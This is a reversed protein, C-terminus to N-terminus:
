HVTEVVHFSERVAVVGVCLGSCVCREVDTRRGGGKENFDSSSSAFAVSFPACPSLLFFFHPLLRRFIAFSFIFTPFLDRGHIASASGGEDAAFFLRLQCRARSMTLEACLDTNVGGM